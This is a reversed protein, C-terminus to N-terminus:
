SHGQRKRLPGKLHDFYYGLRTKMFPHEEEGLNIALNKFSANHTAEYNRRIVDFIYSDHWEKELFIAGSLYHFKMERLFDFTLQSGHNFGIFGCESYAIPKPFQDRGLYSFVQDGDPFFEDLDACTFPRLCVVDSDLWAFNNQLLGFDICKSFAFIKFSFRLADYRYNYKFQYTKAEEDILVPKLGRAQTFNGFKRWFLSQEISDISIIQINKFESFETWDIQSLDGEFCVILNIDQAANKVWSLLFNSAYQEYLKKNFSTVFTKM